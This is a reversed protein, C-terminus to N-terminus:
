EETDPNNEPDTDESEIELDNTLEDDDDLADDDEAEAQRVQDDGLASALTNEVSSTMKLSRYGGRLHNICTDNPCKYYLRKANDNYVFGNVNFQTLTAGCTFCKFQGSDIFGGLVDFIKMGHGQVQRNEVM